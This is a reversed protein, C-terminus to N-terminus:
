RYTLAAVNVVCFLGVEVEKLDVKLMIRGKDQGWYVFPSLDEAM